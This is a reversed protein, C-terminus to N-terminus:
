KAEGGTQKNAKRSEFRKQLGEFLSIVGNPRFLVVLVMALGYMAFGAGGGGFNSLYYNSVELMPVCIFAGLVPGWITGMGGLIATVAIRIALDHSAVSNPDIYGIKFSYFAGTVSLLVASIIFAILKMRHTRVGLSQAADEDERIARLYYGLKTKSIIATILVIILMWIFAIYYFPVESDFRLQWFNNGSSMKLSVGQAGGTLSAFNFILQRIISTCSITAISFFVGRLKLTPAGIAIALVIAIAVGIFISVWPSTGFNTNLLMATYAGICFFAPSAWSTQRGFGGLINWATGMAAFFFVEIFVRLLYGRTIILPLAMCLVIFGIAIPHKTAKRLLSTPKKM